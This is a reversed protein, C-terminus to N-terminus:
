EDDDDVGDEEQGIDVIDISDKLDDFYNYVILQHNKDVPDEIQIIFKLNVSYNLLDLGKEHNETM